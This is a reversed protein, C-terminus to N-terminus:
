ARMVFGPSGSHLRADLQSVSSKCCCRAGTDPDADVVVVVVVMVVVVAALENPRQHPENWNANTHKESVLWEPCNLKASPRISGANCHM